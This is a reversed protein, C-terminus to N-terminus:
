CRSDDYGFADLALIRCLRARPSRRMILQRTLPLNALCQHRTDLIRPLRYRPVLSACLEAPLPVSLCPQCSLSIPGRVRAQRFRSIRRPLGTSRDDISLTRRTSEDFRSTTLRSFSTSIAGLRPQRRASAVGSASMAYVGDAPPTLYFLATTAHGRCLATACGFIPSARPM